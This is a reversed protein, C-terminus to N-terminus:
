NICCDFQMSKAAADAAAAAAPSSTVLNTRAQEPFAHLTAKNPHMRQLEVYFCWIHVAASETHSEVLIVRRHSRFWCLEAASNVAKYPARTFIIPPTVYRLM